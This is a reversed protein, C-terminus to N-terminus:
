RHELVADIAANHKEAGCNCGIEREDCCGEESMPCSYWCDECHHHPIKAARLAEALERIRATAAGAYALKATVENELEATLADYAAAWEHSTPENYTNPWRVWDAYQLRPGPRGVCVSVGDGEAASVRVGDVV